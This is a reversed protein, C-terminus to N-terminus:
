DNWVASAMERTACFFELEERQLVVIQWLGRAESYGIAAVQKGSRNFMATSDWMMGESRAMM